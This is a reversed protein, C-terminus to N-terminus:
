KFVTSLQIGAYRANSGDFRQQSGVEVKLAFHAPLEVRAGIVSNNRAFGPNRSILADTSPARNSELRGYGSWKDNFRYEGQIYTSTITNHNLVGSENARHRTVYAEALIRWPGSEWNVFGNVVLQSLLDAPAGAVPLDFKAFSAGIQTPSTADPQWAVKASVGTKGFRQPRLFAVPELSAGDITPGSAVSADVNLLADGFRKTTQLLLGMGHLPLLGGEDEYDTIKPRNISTQLYAGHHYETNWFGLPTHFRGAWLTASQNLKWGIQAREVEKEKKNLLVEGLLRLRGYDKSFFISGGFDVDNSAAVGSENLRFATLAPFVLIEQAMASGESLVLSALLVISCRCRVSLGFGLHALTTLFHRHFM